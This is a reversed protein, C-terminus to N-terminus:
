GFCIAKFEESVGATLTMVRVQERPSSPTESKM